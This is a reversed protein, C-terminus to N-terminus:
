HYPSTGTPKEMFVAETELNDLPDQSPLNSDFTREVIPKGEVVGEESPGGCSRVRADLDSVKKHAIKIKSFSAEVAKADGTKLDAQLDYLYDEGLKLVGKLAILAENICDLRDMAKDARAKRLAAEAADRLKRMEDVLKGGEVGMQQATLKDAGSGAWAPDAPAVAVLVWAAM